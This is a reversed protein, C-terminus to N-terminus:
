LWASNLEARDAVHMSSGVFPACGLLKAPFHVLENLGSM